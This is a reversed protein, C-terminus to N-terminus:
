EIQNINEVWIFSNEVWDLLKLTEQYRDHSGLVVFLLRHNNRDVETILVEGAGETTGTKIGVFGEEPNLLKHTNWIQHRYWGRVDGVTTTKTAVIEKLVPDRMFYRSLLALDKASSYHGHADFGISNQYHTDKLELEQAKKNMLEVFASEGDPYNQALLLAAENGSQILSAKLLDDVTVQEGSVFGISAGELDPVQNITIVQDLSYVERAIIATMLKTTSAPFLLEDPNKEFLISGSDIDIVSAASAIIQEPQWSPSLSSSQTQTASATALDLVQGETASDEESNSEQSKRIPILSGKVQYVRVLPETAVTKEPQSSTPYFLLLGVTVLIALFQDIRIKPLPLPKKALSM